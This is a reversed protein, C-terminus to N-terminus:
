SEGPFEGVLLERTYKLRKMLSALWSGQKLSSNTLLQDLCYTARQNDNDTYQVRRSSNMLVLESHDKFNVQSNDNNLRFLIASSTRLWQSVFLPVFPKGEVPKASVEMGFHSYFHTSLTVKKRLRHPYSTLTYREVRPRRSTAKNNTLKHGIYALKHSEPDLVIKTYDNFYVGINGNSLLYGIGYKRTYDLWKRVYVFKEDKLPKVKEEEKAERRRAPKKPRCDWDKPNNASSKSKKSPQATEPKTQSKTCRSRKRKRQQAYWPTPSLMTPLSPPPSRLASLPLSAPPDVATFFDHEMIQQLDARNEINKVLMIEICNKAMASVPVDLPFSYEVMKIKRYTKNLTGTQFPPKGILLTFMIVGLSWIDVEFSHGGKRNGHLIEPAIYNPTGCITTKRDSVKDLQAALGFDALKCNMNHDLLVNGLKLDRHIVNQNHLYDVACIIQLMYYQVEPETLRRRRKKLEMLTQNNCYEMLMYVYKRNEFHRNFKVVNKHSLSRHIRIEFRIKDRHAKKVLSDKDVMKIAYSRGSTTSMVGYVCAFGGRGLLAKVEYKKAISSSTYDEIVKPPPPLAKRKPRRKGESKKKEKAVM